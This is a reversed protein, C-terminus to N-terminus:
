TLQKKFQIRQKKLSIKLLVKFTSIKTATWIVQCNPFSSNLNLGSKKKEPGQVDQQVLSVRLSFIVTSLAKDNLETLAM